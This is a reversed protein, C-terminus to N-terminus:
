DAKSKKVLPERIRGIIKEVDGCAAVLVDSIVDDGVGRARLISKIKAGTSKPYATLAERLPKLGDEWVAQEVGARTHLIGEAEANEREVKAAQASTLRNKEADKDGAMAFFVQKATLGEAARKGKERKPPTIGAKVLSTELTRRDIGLATAWAQLSHSIM